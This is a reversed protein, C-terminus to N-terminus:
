ADGLQQDRPDVVVAKESNALLTEDVWAAAFQMGGEATPQERAEEVESQLGRHEGHRESSWWTRLSRWSDDVQLRGLWGRKCCSGFRSGGRCGFPQLFSRADM